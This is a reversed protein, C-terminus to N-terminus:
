TVITIRGLTVDDNRLTRDRRLGDILETFAQDGATLEVNRLAEWPKREAEVETLFWQALADTMLFFQDGLQWTGTTRNVLQPLKKDHVSDKGLLDPNNDFALAHQIPFRTLLESSRVHFLCSDGVALARWEESTQDLELGLLTAFGGARLGPEEYWKIVIDNTQRYKLYARFWKDWRKSALRLIHFIDDLNEDSKEASCVVKTLIQAWKGSLMSASAGDSVAFRFRERGLKGCHRWYFADENESSSNGGKPLGFFDTCVRMGGVCRVQVPHTRRFPEGPDQLRAM